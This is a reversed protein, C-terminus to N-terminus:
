PDALLSIFYFVVPTSSDPRSNHREEEQLCHDIYSQIEEVHSYLLFISHKSTCDIPRMASSSNKKENKTNVLLLNECFEILYAWDVNVIFLLEKPIGHRLAAVAPVLCRSWNRTQVTAGSDICRM